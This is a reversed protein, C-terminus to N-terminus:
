KIPRLERVEDPYLIDFKSDWYQVRALWKNAKIIDSKIGNYERNRNSRGLELSQRVSHFEAIRGRVCSRHAPCAILQSLLWVGGIVAIIVGVPMDCVEKPPFRIAWVLGIALLVVPIIWIIM